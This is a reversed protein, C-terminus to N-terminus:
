EELDTGLIFQELNDAAEKDTLFKNIKEQQKRRQYAQKNLEAKKEKRIKEKEALVEDVDRGDGYGREAAQWRANNQVQYTRSDITTAILYAAMDDNKLEEIINNNNTFYKEVYASLALMRAEKTLGSCDIFLMKYVAYPIQIYPLTIPSDFMGKSKYNKM